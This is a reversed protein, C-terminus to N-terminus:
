GLNGLFHNCTDGIAMNLLIVPMSVLAIQGEQCDLEVQCKVSRGDRRRPM